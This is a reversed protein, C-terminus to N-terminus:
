ESPEPADENLADLRAAVAELGTFDATNGAAIEAKLAEIEAKLADSASTVEVFVKELTATVANVSDQVSMIKQELKNLQKIIEDLKDESCSVNITILSMEYVGLHVKCM